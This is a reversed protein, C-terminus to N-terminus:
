TFRVYAHNDFYGRRTTCLSGSMLVIVTFGSFGQYTNWFARDNLYDSNTEEVKNM